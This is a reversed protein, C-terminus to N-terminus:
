QVHRHRPQNHPTQGARSAKWVTDLAYSPVLFFAPTCFGRGM